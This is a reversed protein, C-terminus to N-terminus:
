AATAANHLQTDNSKGLLSDVLATVGPILLFGRIVMSVPDPFMSKTDREQSARRQYDRILRPYTLLEDPLLASGGVTATDLLLEAAGLVFLTRGEHQLVPDGHHVLARADALKKLPGVFPILDIGLNAVGSAFSANKNPDASLLGFIGSILGGLTALIGHEPTERASRATESPSRSHATAHSPRQDTITAEIDPRRLGPVALESLPSSSQKQIETIRPRTAVVREM